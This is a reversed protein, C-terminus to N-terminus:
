LFLYILAQVSLAAIAWIRLARSNREDADPKRLLVRFVLGIREFNSIAFGASYAGGGGGIIDTAGIDTAVPSFGVAWWPLSRGALFFDTGSKLKAGVKLGLWITGALYALLVAYDLGGLKGPM